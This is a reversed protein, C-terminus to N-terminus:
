LMTVICEAEVQRVKCRVCLIGALLMSWLYTNLWCCSTAFDICCEQAQWADRTTGGVM